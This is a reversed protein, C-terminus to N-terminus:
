RENPQPSSAMPVDSQLSPPLLTGGRPINTEGESDPRVSSAQGGSRAPARSSERAAVPIPAPTVVALLSAISSSAETARPETRPLSAGSALTSPAAPNPERNDQNRSALDGRDVTADSGSNGNLPDPKRHALFAQKLQRSRTLRTDLATNSSPPSAALTNSIASAPIGDNTADL